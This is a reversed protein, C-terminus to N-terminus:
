STLASPPLEGSSVKQLAVVLAAHGSLFCTPWLGRSAGQPDGPSGSEQTTSWRSSPSPLPSTSHPARNLHAASPLRLSNCLSLPACKIIGGESGGTFVTLPDRMVEVATVTHAVPEPPWVAVHCCLPFHPGTTELM